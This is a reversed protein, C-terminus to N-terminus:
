KEIIFEAGCKRCTSYSEPNITACVPCIYTGSNAKIKKKGKSVASIGNVLRIIAEGLNISYSLGFCLVSVTVGQFITAIGSVILFTSDGIHNLTYIGGILSFLLYIFGLIILFVRM